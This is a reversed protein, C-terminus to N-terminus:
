RNCFFTDVAMGSSMIPVRNRIGWQNLNVKSLRHCYQGNINIAMPNHIMKFGRRVGENGGGGAPVVSLSIKSIVAMRVPVVRWIVERMLVELHRIWRSRKPVGLKEGDQRQSSSALQCFGPWCRLCTLAGSAKQGQVTARAWAGTVEVAQANAWQAATLLCAVLTTQLTTNM